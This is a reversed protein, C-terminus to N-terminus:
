SVTNMYVHPPLDGYMTHVQMICTGFYSHLLYKILTM